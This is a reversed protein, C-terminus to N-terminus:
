FGSNQMFLSDGPGANGYLCVTIKWIEAGMKKLMIGVFRPAHAFLSVGIM